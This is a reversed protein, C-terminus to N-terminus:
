PALNEVMALEKAMEITVYYEILTANNAEMKKHFRVFDQAEVFDYESIRNKIWNSFEQRSEVFSHLERASVTEYYYGRHLKPAIIDNDTYINM